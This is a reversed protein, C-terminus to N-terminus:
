EEPMGFYLFRRTQPIRSAAEGGVVVFIQAEGDMESDGWGDAVFDPNREVRAVIVIRPLIGERDKGQVPSELPTEDFKEAFVGVGANFLVRGDGRLNRFPHFSIVALDVNM